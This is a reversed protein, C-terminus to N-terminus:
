VLIELAEVTTQADTATGCVVHEVNIQAIVDSEGVDSM